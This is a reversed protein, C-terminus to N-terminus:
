KKLVRYVPYQMHAPEYNESKKFLWDLQAYWNKAFTSDNSKKLEFYEKLEDDKELMELAQDEFVYPSFGEKQQLITDFFNWNFFSDMAAPELTEMIYRIGPQDTPIVIDGESFLM